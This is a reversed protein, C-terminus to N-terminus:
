RATATPCATSTRDDPRLRPRARDQGRARRADAGRHLRAGARARGRALREELVRICARSRRGKRSASGASPAARARSSSRRRSRRRRPRRVRARLPRRVRGDARARARGGGRRAGRRGRRRRVRTRASDAVPHRGLLIVREAGLRKSAIVGCLGVAGDGVVAVTKGPGVRASLAAHHGTSMVDSLTLLSPMLADDQKSRSCSWRGTPRRCACPRARAATSARTATAAATCARPRCGKAASSAPATPGSSRRSSWIM